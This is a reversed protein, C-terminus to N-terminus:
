FWGWVGGMYGLAFAISFVPLAVVLCAVTFGSPDSAQQGNDIYVLRVTTSEASEVGDRREQHGPVEWAPSQDPNGYM